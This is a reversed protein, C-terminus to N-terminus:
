IIPFNYNSDSFVRTFENKLQENLSLLKEHPRIFRIIFSVFNWIIAIDVNSFNWVNALIQLM